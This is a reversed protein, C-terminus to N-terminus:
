CTFITRKEFVLTIETCQSQACLSFVKNFPMLPEANDGTPSSFIKWCPHTQYKKSLDSLSVQKHKEDFAQISGSGSNSRKDAVGNIRSVM